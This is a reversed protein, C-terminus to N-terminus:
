TSTSATLNELDVDIDLQSDFSIEQWKGDVKIELRLNEPRMGMAVAQEIQDLVGLRRYVELRHWDKFEKTECMKVFADSKNEHQSRSAESYGRAGSARHKCHVASSTKNRKQGGAGTGKTYSWDCDTATVSFLLKREKTV